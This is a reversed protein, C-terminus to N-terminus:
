VIYGHAKARQRAGESMSAKSWAAAWDLKVIAGAVGPVAEAAAKADQQILEMAPCGVCPFVLSVQAHGSEDVGVGSVMGMDLLSAGLHPDMVQGMADRVAQELDAGEAAVAAVVARHGM